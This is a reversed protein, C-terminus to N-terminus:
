RRSVWLLSAGLMSHGANWYIDQASQLGFVISGAVGVAILLVGVVFVIHKTVRTM